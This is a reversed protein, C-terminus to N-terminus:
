RGDVSSQRATTVWPPQPAHWEGVRRAAAFSAWAATEVLAADEPRHRRFEGVVEDDVQHSALATLLALRGAPRDGAPLAGVLEECWARSLGTEAGRWSALRRGVLDRVAPSVSRKGAEAFAAYARAAAAAVTPNGRAWAAAEPLPAAPLLALSRGPEHDARLTPALVQSIGHKFRRRAKPGLWPPLLFSGLFVNVMRTLYHFGVVVGVLEPRHSAPVAPPTAATAPEAPLLHAARAWAAAARVRPDTVDDVRDRAIAEADHETSLDYLGTSHMDVCYPCITAVSVAAAVAEKTLRDAAGSAILPERMLMWFAALLDPAPSHLLAPPVVIRLEDDIQAYVQAVLGTATLPPVPTVYRVQRRVVSSAVRRAIM